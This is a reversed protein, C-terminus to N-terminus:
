AAPAEHQELGSLREAWALTVAQHGYRALAVVLAAGIVAAVIAKSGVGYSALNILAMLILLTITRRFISM